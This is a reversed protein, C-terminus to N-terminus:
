AVPAVCLDGPFDHVRRGCCFFGLLYLQPLAPRGEESWPLPLHFLVLLATLTLAIAGLLITNRGPLTAASVTVPAVILVIFPNQIGGTLFLLVALQAMDYTLLLTAFAPSLRHRGPYKVGLFINLWASIAIFLLCYGIPLEFGLGFYVGCVTILQGIVAFWRLRVITQLRLRSESPTMAPSTQHDYLRNPM